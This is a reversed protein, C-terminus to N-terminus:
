TPSMGVPRPPRRRSASRAASSSSTTTAAESRTASAPAACCGRCGPPRTEAEALRALGILVGQASAGKGAVAVHKGAYRARSPRTASTPSATPSGNPTPENAPRPTATPASRTRTRGPAPPTSSRAPWCGSRAPRGDRRARRVPRDRPRLRRDPRPGARRRRHGPRRLPGRRRRRRRPADALPQLYAERWEGGTPYADEDPATWGGHRELLRRAAPDILERGRRSCGSTRGSAWRPAPTPGAELVVFDLGREAANAAAAALGIPGAGIVVLPHLSTHDSM